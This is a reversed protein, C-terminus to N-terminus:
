CCPSTFLNLRGGITGTCLLATVFGCEEDDGMATQPATKLHHIKQAFRIVHEANQIACSANHIRPAGITAAKSAALIAFAFILLSKM